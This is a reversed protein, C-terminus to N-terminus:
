VNDAIFKLLGDITRPYKGGMVIRTGNNELTVTPFGEISECKVKDCDFKNTAVALNNDVAYKEFETWIPLFQQSYGCWMTYYLNLQVSKERPLEKVEFHDINTNIPSISDITQASKQNEKVYKIILTVIILIIIIAIIFYNKNIQTFWNFVNM